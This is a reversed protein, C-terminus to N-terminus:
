VMWQILWQRNMWAPLPPQENFLVSMSIVVSLPMKEVRCRLTKTEIDVEVVHDIFHSFLGAASTQEFGALYKSFMSLVTQTLTHADSQTNVEIAEYRCFHEFVDSAYVRDCIVQADEWLVNGLCLCRLGKDSYALPRFDKPVAHCCMVWLFAGDFTAAMPHRLLAALVFCLGGYRLAVKPRANAKENLAQATFQQSAGQHHTLLARTQEIMQCFHQKSEDNSQSMQYLVKMPADLADLAIEHSLLLPLHQANDSECAWRMMVLWSWLTHWEDDALHRRRQRCLVFSLILQWTSTQFPWFVSPLKGVEEDFFAIEIDAALSLRPNTPAGLARLLRQCDADSFRTLLRSLLRDEQLKVFVDIMASAHIELQQLINEALSQQSEFWPEYPWDTVRHHILLHKIYSALFDAQSDYQRINDAHQIQMGALIADVIGDAWRDIDAQMLGHRTKILLNVHVARVCVYGVDGPVALALRQALANPLQNSAWHNVGSQIRNVSDAHPTKIKLHHNDLILQM